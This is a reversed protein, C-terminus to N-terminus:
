VDKIKRLKEVVSVTVKEETEIEWELETGKIVKFELDKRSIVMDELDKFNDLAAFYEFKHAGVSFAPNKLRFLVHYKM